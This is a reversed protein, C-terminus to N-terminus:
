FYTECNPLAKKIREKETKSINNGALGLSKLKKLQGINDPLKSINCGNLSLIELNELKVINDIESLGSNDDLNLSKLNKLETLEIPIKSIANVNLQLTELQKLNKIQPPIESIMWCKTIDNGKDDVERYDCDMGQVSLHRLNTMKFISDPIYRSKLQATSSYFVTTTDSNQQKDFGTQIVTKDTTTSACSIALLVTGIILSNTM